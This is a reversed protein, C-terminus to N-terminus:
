KRGYISECMCRSEEESTEVAPMTHSLLGCLGTNSFSSIISKVYESKFLESISNFAFLFIFSFLLHDKPFYYVTKYQHLPFFFVAWHWDFLNIEMNVPPDAKM